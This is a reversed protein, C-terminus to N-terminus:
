CSMVRGSRGPGVRTVPLAPHIGVHLPKQASWPAARGQRPPGVTGETVHVYTIKRSQMCAHSTRHHHWQRPMRASVPCAKVSRAVEEICKLRARQKHIHICVGWGRGVLWWDSLTAVHQPLVGKMKRRAPPKDGASVVM